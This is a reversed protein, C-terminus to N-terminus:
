LIGDKVPLAFKGRMRNFIDISTTQKLVLEALLRGTLPGFKFGHGSFGAGIVVNPNHPHNDIIFNHDPTMTYLCTECSLLSQIPLKLRQRLLSTVPELDEANAEVLIDPNNGDVETLHKAAKLGPRRFEPLGYFVDNENMGLYVWVPFHRPTCVVKEDVAYYGVTQRVVKLHSSLEPVLRDAWAGNAVILYQAHYSEKATDIVIPDTNVEIAKVAINEIMQVGNEEALRKLVQITQMADILGASNDALASL